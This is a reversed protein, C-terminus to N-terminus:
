SSLRKIEISIAPKNVRIYRPCETYDLDNNECYQIIAKKESQTNFAVIVVFGLDKRHLINLDHLDAIVKRRKELLFNIRSPLRDIKEKIASIIRPDDIKEVSIKDFLERDKCSIFGTAGLDVLKWRGFSCVLIDAFNGDCLETGIGASCDLIVLCNHKQCLKYIEQMPQQAFYGGPNQYLLATFKNTKLQRELDRLDIKADKCKVTEFKSKKYSLWGGEQPVLISGGVLKIAAKIAANGRKTITFYQHNTLRQLERKLDM